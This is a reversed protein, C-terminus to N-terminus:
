GWSIDNMMMIPSGQPGVPRPTSIHVHGHVFRYRQNVSFARSTELHFFAYIPDILTELARGPAVRPTKFGGPSSKPM